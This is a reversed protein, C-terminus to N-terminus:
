GSIASLYLLIKGNAKLSSLIADDEDLIGISMNFSCRVNSQAKLAANYFYHYQNTM